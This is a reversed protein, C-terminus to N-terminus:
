IWEGPFDFVVPSSISELEAEKKVFRYPKEM